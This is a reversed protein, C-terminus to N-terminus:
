HFLFFLSQLLGIMGGLMAGLWTIAKFEKGSISLVVEEVNEVPFKSVQDEVMQPLNMARLIKHIHKSAFNLLWDVLLPLHSRITDQWPDIWQKVRKELFRDGWEEWKLLDLARQELWPFTEGGSIKAVLEDLKMEEVEDAKKLLFMKVSRRIDPQELQELAAIRIKRILKEEDMFISALTGMWGGGKELFGEVLHRLLNEGNVSNLEKQIANLIMEVAWDVWKEKQEENWGPICEKIKKDRLQKKNWLWDMGRSTWQQLALLIRQRWREWQTQGVWQEIFESVTKDEELLDDIWQNMGRVMKQKLEAKQLSAVIGESTVLYESVVRGLSEAIQQKRKPILGPTFPLKHKGIFIPKRPHFLMKIALYNTIGGIIAAITVVFCITVVNQM